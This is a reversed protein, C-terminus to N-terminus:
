RYYINAEERLTKLWDSMAGSKAEGELQEKALTELEEASATEPLQDKYKELFAEIEEQSIETSTDSMKEGIKQVKIQKELDTRTMGETVLAEELTRGQAKMQDEIKSMEVEIEAPEIEVGKKRAESLILSEIIMRDLVQEGVQSEMNKIYEFRSILRGNVTAVNGFQYYAGLFLVLGLVMLVRRGKMMKM